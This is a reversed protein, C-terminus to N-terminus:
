IYEQKNVNWIPRLHRHSTWCIEPGKPATNIDEFEWCITCPFYSYSNCWVLNGNHFALYVERTKFKHLKGKQFDNNPGAEYVEFEEGNYEWNWPTEDWKGNLIIWVQEGPKYQVLEGSQIKEFIKSKDKRRDEKKKWPTLLLFYDKEEIYKYVIRRKQDVAYPFTKLRKIKNM